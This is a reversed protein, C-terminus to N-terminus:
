ECECLIDYIEDHTLTRCCGPSIVSSDAVARLDLDPATGLERFSTPLGLEKIFATLADIGMKAATEDDPESVGWVKRAFRAFRSLGDKYIHRYLVPHIVALGKGHTCDTYAGLQHEIHHAQFDTVKGIKLIGNEAMSSAWALESRADYDYPSELLKRSCEIVRCMLAENIDDSLNNGIPKGFYTEMAHSLTDFAGSFVLDMPVSMAYMPDLLAHDAQAGFIGGKIKKAENTIVAGANMESGTGFVTVVTVIPIFRNPFRHHVTEMDWIDEDCMAQASVIKCCDSVSGGGVALILDVKERKALEAGERVKAYTPNPMIGSFEVVKKGCRNLIACIEDYIGNEKASRRGYALMVTDGYGCLLRELNEGVCGKGFFVKTKNEYVFNNM